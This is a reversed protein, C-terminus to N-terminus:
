KKKQSGLVAKVIEERKMGFSKVKLASALMKLQAGTLDSLKKQDYPVGKLLDAKVKEKEAESKKKAGVKAGPAGIILNDVLAELAATRIELASLRVDVKKENMEQNM